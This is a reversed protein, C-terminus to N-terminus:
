PIYLNYMYIYSRGGRSISNHSISIHTPLERVKGERRLDRAEFGLECVYAHALLFKNVPSHRQREKYNRSDKICIESTVDIKIVLYNCSRLFKIAYM